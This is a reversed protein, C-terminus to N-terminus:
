VEVGMSRAGQSGMSKRDEMPIRLNMIGSLQSGGCKVSVPCVEAMNKISKLFFIIPLNMLLNCEVAGPSGLQNILKPM